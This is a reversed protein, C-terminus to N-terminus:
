TWSICPEKKAVFEQPGVSSQTERRTHGQVLLVAVCAVLALAQMELVSTGHHKQTFLSTSQSHCSGRVRGVDAQPHRRDGRSLLSM